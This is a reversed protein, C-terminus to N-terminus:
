PLDSTVSLNVNGASVADRKSALAGKGFRLFATVRTAGVGAGLLLLSCVIGGRLVPHVCMSRVGGRVAICKM